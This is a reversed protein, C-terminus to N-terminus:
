WGGHGHHRRGQSWFSGSARIDRSSSGAMLEFRGRPVVWDGRAESWVSLDRRDLMLTVTSREGPALEVKRFAKLVKPPEGSGEPFGVYLQVVEAGERDGTNRVRVKAVAGGRHYSRLVRLKGYSFQTYALGHGFPFAPEQGQADFWRYGVLLGEDYRVVDGVGPFREPSTLPGQADSAPFTAPLKASPSVDGFLLSAIADGNEQGPYWAELIGAVQGRWPTLVPGGTNLVVVTRPNVAAVAEILQDQDGPIRLSFLDAGETRIDTVFVVAVDAARAAEIAAQWQAPDPPSWGLQLRVPLLGPFPSKALYEVRIAVPQGAPLDVAAINLSNSATLVLEDDVYLRATGNGSLSLRQLGSVTPTFTGTWRGSWPETLEPPTATVDLTPDVRTIVPTGSLDPSQFYEATLGNGTGSAPTLRATDMVPPQATGATGPAYTVDVDGGARATIGQLPTVTNSPVVTASGGGTYIPTNQAAAGIVAVSDTADEDIPLAGGANKLLVTGQESLQEAFDQHEENTVVADHSGTTTRDLQGEGIRASLIRIVMDNLRAEPVQGSQVAAKLREGFFEPVPAPQGFLTDGGPMELDLGALASGVASHTAFWDSMVFGRYGWEGKLIDSLLHENECAYTGNVKNYACMVARTGGRKVAKEFQLTYIERLPREGVVANVTLRDTEQNNVAYHKATAIVGQTQIGRIEAAGVDGSLEPDESFTEFARGWGPVRIINMTPALAVDNGKGAHEAGLVAGYRRLLRTDWSAANSIAAPFATVGTAGNGVGNPGDALYFPPIGLREIAPTFGTFGNGTIFGTGHVLSIKEDLTMQAVLAGARAAAADDGGAHAAVTAPMAGVVLTLAWAARVTRGWRM